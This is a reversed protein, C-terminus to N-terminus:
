RIAELRERLEKELDSDKLGRAIRSAQELALSEQRPTSNEDDALARYISLAEERKKAQVLKKAKASDILYDTV